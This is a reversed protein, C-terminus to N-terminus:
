IGNEDIKTYWNLMAQDESPEDMLDFIRQAGAMAM